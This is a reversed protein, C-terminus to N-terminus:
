QGPLLRLAVVGRHLDFREQSTRRRDGKRRKREEEEEEAEGL